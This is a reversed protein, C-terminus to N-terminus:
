RVEPFQRVLLEAPILASAEKPTAASMQKMFFKTGAAECEAKISDAWAIGTEAGM